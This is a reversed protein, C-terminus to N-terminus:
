AGVAALFEAFRAQTTTLHAMLWTSLEDDDRTPDPKAFAQNWRIHLLILKRVDLDAFYSTHVLADSGARSHDAGLARVAAPVGELAAVMLLERLAPGLTTYCDSVRRDLRSATGAPLGAHAGANALPLPWPSVYAAVAAPLDSGQIARALAGAVKRRWFPELWRNAFTVVPTTARRLSVRPVDPLLHATGVPVLVALKPLPPSVPLRPMALRGRREIRSCLREFEVPHRTSASLANLAEDSPSWLGLWRGSFRRFARLGARERTLLTQAYSRAGMVWLAFLWWAFVPLALANAVDGRTWSRTLSALWDAGVMSAVISISLYL